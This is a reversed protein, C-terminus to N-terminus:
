PDVSFELFFLRDLDSQGTHHGHQAGKPLGRTSGTLSDTPTDATAMQFTELPKRGNLPVYFKELSGQREYEWQM